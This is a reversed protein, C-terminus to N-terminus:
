GTPLIVPDKRESDRPVYLSLRASYWKGAWKNFFFLGRGKIYRITLDGDRGEGKGPYGESRTILKQKLNLQSKLNRTKM